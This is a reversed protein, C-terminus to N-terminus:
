LCGTRQLFQKIGDRTLYIGSLISNGVRIAPIMRIGTNRMDKWSSLVEREELHLEPHGGILALLHKRAM